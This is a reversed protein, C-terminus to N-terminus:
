APGRSTQRSTPSRSAPWRSIKTSSGSPYRIMTACSRPSRWSDRPRDHIVRYRHLCSPDTAGFVISELGRLQELPILADRKRNSMRGDQLQDGAGQRARSIPAPVPRSAAPSTARPCETTATSGVSSSRRPAISRCGDGIISHSSSLKGSRAATRARLSSNSRTMSVATHICRSSACRWRAIGFTEANTRLPPATIMDSRCPGIGGPRRM